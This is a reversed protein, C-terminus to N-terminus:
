TKSPVNPTYQSIIRAYNEAANASEYVGLYIDKGEIRIRAQGSAKHHQIRPPWIRMRGPRRPLKGNDRLRADKFFLGKLENLLAGEECSLPESEKMRIWKALRRRDSRVEEALEPRLCDPLDAPSDCGLLACFATVEEKRLKFWEGKVRQKKLKRHIAKEIIGAEACPFSHLLVPEWPLSDFYGLRQEPNSSRGIKYYGGMRILYVHELEQM